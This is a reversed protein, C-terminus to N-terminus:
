KRTQTAQALLPTAIAPRWHCKGILPSVSLSRRDFWSFEFDRDQVDVLIRCKLASIPGHEEISGVDRYKGIVQVVCVGHDLAQGIQLEDGRRPRYRDEVAGDVAIRICVAAM